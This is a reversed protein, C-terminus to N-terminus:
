EEATIAGTSLRSWLVALQELRAPLEPGAYLPSQNPFTQGTRGPLLNGLTRDSDYLSRYVPLIGWEERNLRQSRDDTMESIWAYAAEEAETDSSIAFSSGRTWVYPLKWSHRDIELKPELSSRQEKLWASATSNPVIASLTKGDRLLREAEEMSSVFQVYAKNEDLVTLAREFPTGAWPEEEEDWIGDSRENTASELWSLLSLPDNRDITLWSPMEPEAAQASAIALATWQEVTLPLAVNEGLWQHLLDMNWVLVFPDMARPVGWLYGNWKLPATVADFQEALAKGEYAADAPLLFGSSAFEKVWENSLLMIDSAEDMESANKYVRYAQKPNVRTLEVKIDPHRLTFEDNRVVLAHFEPEELAVDITLHSVERAIVPEETALSEKKPVPVVAPPSSPADAWPSLFLVMVCLLLFVLASKRRAVAKVKKM